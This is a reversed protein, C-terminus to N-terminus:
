KGDRKLLRTVMAKFDNTIPSRYFRARTFYPDGAYFWEYQLQRAGFPEGILDWALKFLQVRDIASM